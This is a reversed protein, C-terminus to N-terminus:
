DRPSPSTYLLCIILQANGSYNKAASKNLIIAGAKTHQLCEAAKSGDYFCLSSSNAQDLAALNDIVIDNSRKLDIGLLSAIEKANSKM